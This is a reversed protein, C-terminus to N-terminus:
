WKRDTVIGVFGGGAGGGSNLGWLRGRLLIGRRRGSQVGPQIKRGGRDLSLIRMIGALGGVIVRAIVITM